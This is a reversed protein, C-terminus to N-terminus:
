ATWAATRALTSGRHVRGIPRGKTKGAVGDAGEIVKDVGGAALEEDIRSRGVERNFVWAPMIYEYRRRDCNKRCAHVSLLPTVLLFSCHGAGVCRRSVHLRPLVCPWGAAPGAGPMGLRAADAYCLHGARWATWAPHRSCHTWLRAEFASGHGVYVVRLVGGQMAWRADFSNTVRVFGFLKIQAPLHRQVDALMGPRDVGRMKLSVVQGVASVGKDTRAARM